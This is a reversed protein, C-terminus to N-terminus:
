QKHHLNLIQTLDHLNHPLKNHLKYHLKYNDPEFLSINKMKKAIKM